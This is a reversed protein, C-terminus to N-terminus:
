KHNYPMNYVLTGYIVGDLMYWCHKGFIDQMLMNMYVERWTIHRNGVTQMCLIYTEFLWKM